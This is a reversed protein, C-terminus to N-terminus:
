EHIDFKKATEKQTVTNIGKIMAGLLILGPIVQIAIIAGMFVLFLKTMVGDGQVVGGIGSVFVTGVFILALILSTGIKGQTTDPILKM